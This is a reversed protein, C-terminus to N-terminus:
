RRRDQEAVTETAGEVEIREKRLDAEVAEEELVTQKEMRIREKPVVETEAVAHEEHLVVEHTAESIEPGTLADDINADTIPEREVRVTEREVPVTTAVRETEVWKRLRARGSEWREKGLRLEEESRTMADDTTGTTAVDAEGRVDAGLEGMGYHAYLRQEEEPSLAGDASVNPASKVREADWGIRLGGGAASSGAIPVFSVNSGFWGTKVALWEPEGTVDDAYVDVVEGIKKGDSGVAKQGICATLETTNM